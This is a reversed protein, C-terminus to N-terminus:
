IKRKVVCSEAAVPFFDAAQSAQIQAQLIDSHDPPM